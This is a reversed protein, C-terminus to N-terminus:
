PHRWQKIWRMRRDWMKKSQNEKSTEREWLVTKRKRNAKERKNGTWHSRNNISGTVLISLLFAGFILGKENKVIKM